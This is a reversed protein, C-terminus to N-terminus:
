DARCSRVGLYEWADNTVEFADVIAVPVTRLYRRQGDPPEMADRVKNFFYWHVREELHEPPMWDPLDVPLVISNHNLDDLARQVVGVPVAYLQRGELSVTVSVQSHTAAPGAASRRKAELIKIQGKM